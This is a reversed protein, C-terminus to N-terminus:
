GGAGFGWDGAGPFTNKYPQYKSASTDLFTTGALPILSKPVVLYDEVSLQYFIFDATGRSSTLAYAPPRTQSGDRHHARAAHKLV